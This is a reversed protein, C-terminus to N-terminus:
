GDLWRTDSTSLIDFLGAGLQYTLAIHFLLSTSSHLGHRTEMEM